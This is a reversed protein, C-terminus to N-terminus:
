EKLNYIEFLNLSPKLFDKLFSLANTEIQGNQFTLFLSTETGLCLLKYFYQRQVDNGLAYLEIRM